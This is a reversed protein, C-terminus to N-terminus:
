TLPHSFHPPYYHSKHPDSPPYTIKELLSPQDSMVALTISEVGGKIPPTM